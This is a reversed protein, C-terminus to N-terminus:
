RGVDCREDIAEVESSLLSVAVDVLLDCLKAGVMVGRRLSDEEDIGIAHEELRAGDIVVSAVAFRKQELSRIFNEALVLVFRSADLANQSPLLDSGIGNSKRNVM